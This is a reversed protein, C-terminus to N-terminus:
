EGSSNICLELSNEVAGEFAALNVVEAKNGVNRSLVKNLDSRGGLETVAKGLSIIFGENSSHVCAIDSNGIVNGSLGSDGDDRNVVLAVNLLIKGLRPLDDSAQGTKKM